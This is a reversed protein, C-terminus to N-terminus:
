LEFEERDASGASVGAMSAPRHAAIVEAFQRITPADFVARLPLRVGFHQDIRALLRTAVLSHGGLEFFNDDPSVDDVGLLERWIAVLPAEIPGDASPVVEAVTASSSVRSARSAADAKRRLVGRVREVEYPSIVYHPLGAALVRAFGEAGDAPGIGAAVYARRAERNAEAVVVREAMGVEKWADWAMSVTHRWSAPRLSSQAFADLYACAAAYACGGAAPIVASISSFVVFFDLAADAFLRSLVQTGEVKARLVADTEDRQAFMVSSGGAVGASHIVGDIAGWRDRAADIASQMAPADAVDAATVM